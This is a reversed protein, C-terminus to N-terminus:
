QIGAALLAQRVEDTTQPAHLRALRAGDGALLVLTGDQMAHRRAFAQGEPQGLHAVLFEVRDGYEPRMSNLLDMVEAGALYNIDRAVVLAPTGQGIRSLDTPFVGRPLQSLMLAGAAVIVVMTILTKAWAPM